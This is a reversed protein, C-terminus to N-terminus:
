GLRIGDSKRTVSDNDLQCGAGSTIKLKVNYILSLNNTVGFLLANVNETMDFAFGLGFKRRSNPERRCLFLSNRPKLRFNATSLALYATALGGQTSFPRLARRFRGSFPRL